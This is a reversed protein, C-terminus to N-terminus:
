RARVVACTNILLTLMIGEVEYDLAREPVFEQSVRLVKIVNWPKLSRCYESSEDGHLQLAGVGSAKAIREVVDPSAENVFVGV